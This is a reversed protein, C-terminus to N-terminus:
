HYLSNILYFLLSVNIINIEQSCTLFFAKQQLFSSIAQKETLLYHVFLVYNITEYNKQSRLQLYINCDFHVSEDTEM